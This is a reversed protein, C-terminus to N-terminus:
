AKHKLSKLKLQKNPKMIWVNEWKRLLCLKGQFIGCYKETNIVKGPALVPQSSFEGPGSTSWPYVRWGEGDQFYVPIM